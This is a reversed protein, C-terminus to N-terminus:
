RSASARECSPWIMTGVPANIPSSATVAAASPSILETRMIVRL